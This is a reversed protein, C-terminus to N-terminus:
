VNQCLEKRIEKLFTISVPDFIELKTSTISLQMLSSTVKHGIKYSGAAFSYAKGYAEIKATLNWEEKLYQILSEAHNLPLIAADTLWQQIPFLKWCDQAVAQITSLVYNAIQPHYLNSRENTRTYHNDKYRTRSGKRLLGFVTNRLLKSLYLENCDRFGINGNCFFTDSYEADLTIYRYLSFYCAQIDVYAFTGKTPGRFAVPARPGPSGGFTKNSLDYDEQCYTLYESGLEAYTFPWQYLYKVKNRTDTLQKSGVIFSSNPSIRKIWEIPETQIRVRTYNSTRNLVRAALMQYLPTGPLVIGESKNTGSEPNM